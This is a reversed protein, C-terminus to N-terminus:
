KVGADNEADRRRDLEGSEELAKYYADRQQREQRLEYCQQSNLKECDTGRLRDKRATEARADDAKDQAARQAPTLNTYEYYRYFGYLSMCTVVVCLSIFCWLMYKLVSKM